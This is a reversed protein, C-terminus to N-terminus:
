KGMTMSPSLNLRNVSVIAEKLKPYIAVADAPAVDSLIKIPDYDGGKIAPDMVCAYMVQGSQAAEAVKYLKWGAAMQKYEPRAGNELADKVKAFFAEFDAAGEAKVTFLVLGAEGTFSLAAASPKAASQAAGPAGSSPQPTAPAPQAPTPPASSPPPAPNAPPQAPPTQSQQASLSASMWILLAAAGAARLTQALCRSM